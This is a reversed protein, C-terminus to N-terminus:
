NGTALEFLVPVAVTRGGRVAKKEAIEKALRTQTNRVITAFISSLQRSEDPLTGLQDHHQLKCAVIFRLWRRSERTERLVGKMKYIFDNPSSAEDAEDLLGSASSASRALQRWIVRSPEDSFSRPCINLIRTAFTFTRHQLRETRERPGLNGSSVWHARAVLM